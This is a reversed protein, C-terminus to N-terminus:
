SYTIPQVKDQIPVLPAGANATLVFDFKWKGGPKALRWQGAAMQVRYVNPVPHDTGMKVPSTFDIPGITTTMKTTTLAELISAHSSLDKTRKLIDVAWEFRAYEQLIPGWQRGMMKEYEDALEQASMGTLTDKFPYAPTWGASTYLNNGIDGLANLEEAAVLAKAAGMLKPHYSARLCGKWFNSLEPTTMVGYCIECGAQKFAAIEASFDETGPNYMKPMTAEYGAAKVLPPMGTKENTWAAGDATNSFMLGVKKNTPIQNWMSIFNATHQELGLGHLYTWKFPKDPTAGRGMYFSQWPTSNSISPTGQAECQDATPNVTDATGSVIMLDVKDNQILDGAVQAARNSDSMSDRNLITVKHKKGDAGVIGDKIAAETHKVQWEDSVAFAAFAGTKPQVLGIKIEKGAETSAAATTTPGAATTATAGSTTTAGATTAPGATTSAGATTTTTGGCAALLGGLGAGVGVTAGAIGALKLFDRRSVPKGAFSGEDQTETPKRNEV